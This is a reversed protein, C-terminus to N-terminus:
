LSAILNLYDQESIVEVGKNQAASIKKESVKEGVVLYHTKSTVSKTVKAGLDKAKKEVDQRSGQQMVGSFVIIKGSLPPQSSANLVQKNSKSVNFGLNYVKFFEEKINALGEVIAQSSLRAFGDIEVLDDVSLSFIDEIDYVQLIKDCNGPGLRSVGFASLFRWDEIESNRSLQLQDCLNQPTKLKQKKKPKLDSAQDSCQNLNLAESFDEVKMAYVDHIHVIGYQCLQEIVRPGFGDNNGLTKFFHVLTNERQAPCNNKNPCMLHDSEWILNAHCSPCLDPIQPHSSVIVKEIKPIVLGSRVLQVVAGPGVGHIKVMNYHHVTVRSITAGSLKTPVLEAVPSVRGTRSTQPIVAVVEVDASAENIKFAIQWRHHRRTSGLHSKIDKNVVELIIGDIDFDEAQWMNDVISDFNEIINSPHDTTHELLSFPYFVCAGENIAEQIDKDVKKEAIIAAQINRSNEFIESLNEEFYSKKIVMEGHGLGRRGNKAVKLGRAFARSIDQGRFGDGRTYLREGDDYAAYGDLKSTVRIMIESDPINIEQASKLIRVLWKKIDDLSYAKETSLMRAPLEVTKVGTIAEPEVSNLYPHSPDSEKLMSHYLDYQEDTIVPLGSRYLVNSANLIHFLDKPSLQSCSFLTIIEQTPVTNDSANLLDSQEQTFTVKLM